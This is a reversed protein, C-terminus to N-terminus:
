VSITQSSTSRLSASLLSAFDIWQILAPRVILPASRQAIAVAAKARAPGPLMRWRLDHWAGHESLSLQVERLPFHLGLGLAKICAEKATWLHYFADPRQLPSLWELLAVEDPHFFRRALRAKYGGILEIDAGVLGHQSVALLLHQRSHALNFWVPPTPVDDLQPKGCMSRSLRVEAPAIKLLAGLVLRLLARGVLFEDQRMPALMSRYAQLDDLSLQAQLQAAWDARLVAPAQLHFALFHHAELDARSLRIASRTKRPGAQM